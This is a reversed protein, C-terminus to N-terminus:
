YVTVRQSRGNSLVRVRAGTFLPENTSEQVVAILEGSDLRVLLELGQSRSASEEMAAGVRAGALLGILTLIKKGKGKGLSYGALGGVAAGSIAGMGSPSGEINIVRVAELRGGQVTARQYTEQRSYGGGNLNSTACGSVGVCVALMILFKNM